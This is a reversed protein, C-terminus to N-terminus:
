VQALVGGDIVITGEIDIPLTFPMQQNPGIYLITGDPVVLPALNNPIYIGRQGSAFVPLSVGGYTIRQGDNTLGHIVLWFFRVPFGGLDLQAMQTCSFRATAQEANGALWEDIGVDSVLDSAPITVFLLPAPPLSPFPNPSYANYSLDSAPDENFEPFPFIDVELFELDTLDAPAGKSDFIAMELCLGAGKWAQPGKGTAIDIPFAPPNLALGLQLRVVVKNPATM